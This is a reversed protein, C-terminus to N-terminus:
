ATVPLIITKLPEIVDVLAINAPKEADRNERAVSLLKMLEPPLKEETVHALERVERVYDIVQAPRLSSEGERWHKYWVKDHVAKAAQIVLEEHQATM